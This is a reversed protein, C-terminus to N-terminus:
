HLLLMRGSRREGGDTELRYLYLGASVPAGAADTGDWVAEHLGAAEERAVLTRVAEGLVNYVVLRVHGPAPLGYRIATRDRFPNPHGSPSLTLQEPLEGTEVDTATGSSGTGGTTFQGEAAFPSGALGADVAQVSWYYTGAPLSRVFARPQMVSGFAAVRRAGTQVDAMPSAVEMGGPTTGLRLTYTLGPAPTEADGAPQWVFVVVSGFIQVALGTPAEPPANPRGVENRYVKTALIGNREEGTLLLDLDGDGDYDGWAVSSWSVGNLGSEVEAFTGGDNRYFAAVRPANPDGGTSGTLAIDLDGDGDFDGWAADSTTVPLLSTQVGTFTGGENVYLQAVNGGTLLLDLDGDNDYDGGAASGNAVGRLRIGSNRFSGEDNWYLQTIGNGAIVLDLDGDSDYDGWVADGYSIGALSAGADSFRGADNRHVETVLAAGAEGSLLIDLDGDNDYDGWAVSGNVLGPLGAQLAIFAGGDNRFVETIRRSQISLSGSLLVDLDGDNDYDGWAAAAGSVGALTAALQFAGADNRFINAVGQGAALVDLDGDNDYDGWVAEGNFVGPLSAQVAFAQDFPVASAADSPESENGTVDEATLRYYYATGPTVDADVYTTTGTQFSAAFALAEPSTGRYLRYRALDPETNARWSLVVERVGPAATLGAPAAPPETDDPNGFTFRQEPAFASANFSGDLAQVSWYYAGPALGTLRWTTRPGTNGPQPVWRQGSAAGSHPPM